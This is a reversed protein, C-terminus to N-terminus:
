GAVIGEIDFCAVLAANGDATGADDAAWCGANCKAQNKLQGAADTELIGAELCPGGPLHGNAAVELAERDADEAQAFKPLPRGRGALSESHLRNGPALVQRGFLCFGTARFQHALLLKESVGVNDRDM